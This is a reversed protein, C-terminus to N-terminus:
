DPQTENSAPPWVYCGTTQCTLDPVKGRFLQKRSTYIFRIIKYKNILSLTSGQKAKKHLEYWRFRITM